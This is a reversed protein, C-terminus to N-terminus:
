WQTKFVIFTRATHKKKKKGTRKLASGYRGRRQQPKKRNRIRLGACMNELQTLM